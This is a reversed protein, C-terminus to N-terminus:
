AGEKGPHMRDELDLAAFRQGGLPHRENMTGAAFAARVFARQGKVPSSRYAPHRKTIVIFEKTTPTTNFRHRCRDGRRPISSYLSKVNVDLPHSLREKTM